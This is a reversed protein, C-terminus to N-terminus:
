IKWTLKCHHCTLETGQVKRSLGTVPLSLGGTLLASTAKAGSLGNKYTMSRVSIEGRTHCHPCVLEPNPTGVIPGWIAETQQRPTLVLKGVILALISLIAGIGITGVVFNPLSDLWWDMM